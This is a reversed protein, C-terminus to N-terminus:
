SGIQVWVNRTRPGDFECFFVGQWRGLQLRGKQLPIRVSSGMLSARVHAPSNGEGHRWPLTDPVITRLAMVMDGAVDPDACENITLGATTHPCFVLCIGDLADTEQVVQQIQATINRFEERQSTSLTLANM